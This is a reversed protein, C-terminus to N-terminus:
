AEVGENKLYEGINFVQGDILEVDKNWDRVIWDENKTAIVVKNMKSFIWIVKEVGFDLLKQTKTFTYEFDKDDSLDIRIDVEIAIKPPIDLYHVNIKSAPLKNKEIIYVDGSLNTNKSLHTGVENTLFYYSDPNVKTFLMKLIYQIIFSQLGSAGMIDEIKKKKSLVDKYGKYYLKRGDIIEYVLAEPIEKVKPLRVLKPKEVESVLMIKIKLEHLIFLSSLIALDKM